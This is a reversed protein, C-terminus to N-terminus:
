YIANNSSRQVLSRGKQGSVFSAGHIAGMSVGIVGEIPLEEDILVDLVGATYHARFGGGELVLGLRSSSTTTM